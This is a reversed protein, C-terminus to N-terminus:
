FTNLSRQARSQGRGHAIIALSAVKQVDNNHQERPPTPFLGSAVHATLSVLHTNSLYYCTTMCFAAAEGSYQISRLSLEVATEALGGCCHLGVVLDFRGADSLVEDMKEEKSLDCLFFPIHTDLNNELARKRGAALSSENNDIV